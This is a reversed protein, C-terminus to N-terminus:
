NDVVEALVPTSKVVFKKLGEEGMPTAYQV